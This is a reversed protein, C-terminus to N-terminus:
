ENENEGELLRFAISNAEIPCSAATTYGMILPPDGSDLDPMSMLVMSWGDFVMEMGVTVFPYAEGAFVLTGTGDEGLELYGNDKSLSGYFSTDGNFGVSSICYIGPAPPDPLYGEPLENGVYRFNYTYVDTMTFGTETACAILDGFYFKTPECEIPETQGMVSFVGTGDERLEAYCMLGALEEAEPVYFGPLLVPQLYEDPLIKSYTCNLDDPFEIGNETVVGDSFEGGIGEPTWTIQVDQGMAHVYGSGGPELCFYMPSGGSDELSFLYYGEKLVPASACACLVLCVLVACIIRKM